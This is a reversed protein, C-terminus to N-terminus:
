GKYFSMCTACLSAAQDKCDKHEQIYSCNINQEKLKRGTMSTKLERMANLAPKYEEESGHYMGTIKYWDDWYRLDNLGSDVVEMYKEVKDWEMDKMAQILKKMADHVTM